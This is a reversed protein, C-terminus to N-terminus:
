ETEMLETEESGCVLSPMDSHLRIFPESGFGRMFQFEFFMPITFYDINIITTLKPNIQWM